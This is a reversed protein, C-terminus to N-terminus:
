SEGRKVCNPYHIETTKWTQQCLNTIVHQNWVYVIQPSLSKRMQWRITVAWGRSRSGRSVFSLVFSYVVLSGSWANVTYQEKRIEQLTSVSVIDRNRQQHFIITGLAAELPGRPMLLLRWSVVLMLVIIWFLLFPFLFGVIRRSFSSSCLSFLWSFIRWREHDDANSYSNKIDNPWRKFLPEGPIVPKHIGLAWIDPNQHCRLTPEDEFFDCFFYYHLRQYRIVFRISVGFNIKHAHSSGQSGYRLIAFSIYPIM